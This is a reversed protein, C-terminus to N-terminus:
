ARPARRGRRGLLAVGGLAILALGTPEPVAVDFTVAAGSITQQWEGPTDGIGLQNFPTYYTNAISDPLVLAGSRSASAILTSPDDVYYYEITSTWDFTSAGTRTIKSSLKTLGGAIVTDPSAGNSMDLDATNADGFTYDGAAVQNTNDLLYDFNTNDNNGATNYETTVGPTQNLDDRQTGGSLPSALPAGVGAELFLRARYGGFGTLDWQAADEDSFYTASFAVSDGVGPISTLQFSSAGSGDFGLHTQNFGMDNNTPGGVSANYGALPYVTVGTGPTLVAFAPASIAVASFAAISSILKRM